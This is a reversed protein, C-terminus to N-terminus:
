DILKKKSDKYVVIRCYNCIIAPRNDQTMCDVNTGNTIRIQNGCFPCSLLKM